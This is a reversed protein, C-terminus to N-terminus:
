TGHVHPNPIEESETDGSGTDFPHARAEDAASEIRRIRNRAVAPTRHVGRYAIIPRPADDRGGPWSAPRPVRSEVIGLAVQCRRVLDQAQVDIGRGPTRGREWRVPQLHRGGDPACVGRQRHGGIGASLPLTM